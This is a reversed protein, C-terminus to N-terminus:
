WEVRLVNDLPRVRALRIRVTDGADVPFAPNPPLDVDFLCDSLMLNVRKPGLGLVMAPVMQGERPELYRLIWYRHRQQKIANARALKQQLIGAFTRCEDASFLIGKGRIMHNLQHQMALDLFRRIPSTITTYSNLGLGSHTKPHPTLEGRSLFRRQRAIDPIANQVGAILRKRPPPQSRFLGPAERSALYEAALGNALIMLESVLNRAPTDVPALNVQVHDRDRIDINVDPLSLLLAGRDLRQQRLRQRIADLLSLEPDSAMIMDVERYCLQRKVEIVSPVVQSHLVMGDASLQVLFSIAPRIRGQILSCLDLSLERPLMPIHGEPFYLSTARERAEAFLPSKPPVYVTVDTIHIGVQVTGDDLRRVHLGDDFDRTGGGDITLVPLDRLDRRKPDTLLEEATAARLHSVEALCTEPFDVPQESRLLALNEDRDWVGARVLAQFGDHPATLGAKKLALRIFEDEPCDSGFLVSQGLWSLVRDRDPWTEATIAEGKALRALGEAAQHLLRAKEEARQRQLRLQEVQEPTHVTIANNRFKFYLPDDFVARLFAAVRDDDVAAGFLLEALFVVAFEGEPELSVIEWLEDLSITAALEARQAARRRLDAALHERSDERPYSRRSALLVRSEPLHLERGSQSILLLRRDAHSVVLGCCFKGGDMYEIISGPAIM